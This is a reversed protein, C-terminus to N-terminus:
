RTEGRTQSHGASSERETQTDQEECKRRPGWIGGTWCGMRKRWTDEDEERFGVLSVVHVLLTHM